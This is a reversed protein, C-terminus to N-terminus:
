KLGALKLIYITKVKLARMQPQMEQYVVNKLYGLHHDIVLGLCTSVRTALYQPCLPMQSFVM